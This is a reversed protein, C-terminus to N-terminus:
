VGSFRDISFVEFHPCVCATITYGFCGKELVEDQFLDDNAPMLANPFPNSCNPRRVRILVYGVKIFGRNV